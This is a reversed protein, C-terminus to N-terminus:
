PTATPSVPVQSPTPTRTLTPTRTITPTRTPFRTRTPTPTRTPRRTSTPTFTPPQVPTPTYVAEVPYIEVMATFWDLGSTFVFENARAAPLASRWSSLASLREWGYRAALETFDLWYGPPIAPSLAGGQEYFRPDGQYRANLDWPARHLPMGQSGDQFRTRLYIRWYTAPGYDERLVVMWGANVPATNLVIARGTYLWDNLMGPFLPSTLPVYANELVSLFDWGLRRSLEDSLANFSEDARDHLLPYPAQVDDLPVVRV